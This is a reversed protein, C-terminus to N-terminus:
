SDAFGASDSTRIGSVSGIEAQEGPPRGLPRCPVNGNADRSALFLSIVLSASFLFHIPATWHQITMYKRVLAFWVAFLGVACFRSIFAYISTSYSLGPIPVLLFSIILFSNHLDSGLAWAALNVSSTSPRRIPSFQCSKHDIWPM